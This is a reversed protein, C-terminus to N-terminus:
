DESETLPLLRFELNKSGAAVGDKRSTPERGDQAGAKYGAAFWVVVEYDGPPLDTLTFFGRVSTNATALAQVKGEDPPLGAGPGRERCYVVAEAVAVGTRDSVVRGSIELAGDLEIKLAPQIGEEGIVLDRRYSEAYGKKEVKLLTKGPEMNPITFNGSGDTYIVRPGLYEDARFADRLRNAPVGEVNGFRVRADAVPAGRQDVVRGPLSAGPRLTLDLTLEQGPKLNQPASDVRVYDDHAASVVVRVGPPVGHLRYTGTANSIAALDRVRDRVQRAGGVAKVTLTAGGQPLGEPTKVTGVLTAGEELTIDRTVTQLNAPIEVRAQQDDTVPAYGPATIRLDYDAQRLGTIVYEGNEDTLATQEGAWRRGRDVAAVTVYSVPRGKTTTVRGELNGGPQLSWDLVTTEGAKVKLHEDGRKVGAMNLENVGQYGPAAASFMLLHGASVHPLQYYGSEDSVTSVPSMQVFSGAAVTVEAGAIPDGSRADTLRGEVVGAPSLSFDKKTVGEGVEPFQGAPAYGEAWAEIFYRVGPTLTDLRYTGDAESRVDVREVRRANRGPVAVALVRAGGIGQGDPDKVKGIFGAGKDLTIRPESSNEDVTVIVGSRFATAYGPASVRLMYRGPPLDDIQFRGDRGVQSEALFDMAAQLEFIARRVDFSDPRSRDPIVQVVAGVPPGGGATRVEGTLTTPAGLLIEGVDTLRNAQVSLGQLLKEKYPAHRISLLYGFLAPAETWEFVGDPGTTISHTVDTGRATVGMLQVEVGAIPKPEAGPVNQLITGRLVGVGAAGQEVGPVGRRTARARLAALREVQELEYRESETTTAVEDALGLAPAIVDDWLFVATLGLILAVAAVAWPFRKEGM